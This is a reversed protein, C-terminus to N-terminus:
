KNGSHTCFKSFWIRKGRINFYANFHSPIHRNLTVSRCMIIQLGVLRGINFAFEIYLSLNYIDLGYPKRPVMLSKTSQVVTSM